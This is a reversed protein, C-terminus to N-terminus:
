LETSQEVEMDDHDDPELRSIWRESPYSHLTHRLLLLLKGWLEVRQKVQLEQVLECVDLPESADK